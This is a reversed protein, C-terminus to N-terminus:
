PCNNLIAKGAWRRDVDIVDADAKRGSGSLELEEAPTLRDESIGVFSRM